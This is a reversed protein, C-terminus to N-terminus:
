AAEKFPTLDLQKIWEAAQHLSVDFSAAVAMVIQRDTPKVRVGATVPAPEEPLKAEGTVPPAVIEQPKDAQQEQSKSAEAAEQEKIAAIAKEREIREAEAKEHESIRATIVAKLDDNAKLVLQNADPFLMKHEGADAKLTELNIRIRDAIGNAEIKVRALETDAADRLSAITRKGKIVGAFDALVDPMIIKGGLTANITGIHASFETKAKSVIEARISEKRAKLLREAMLRNDRALAHLADKTRKVSDITSVQSLMQAEAADLADEAKKLAKIQLDLDAFDQDDQPERILRNAVFDRLADEFVKFNDVVDIAGSVQVSVAPLATVTEGVLTPAEDEHEYAAVDKDFQAWHDKLKKVDKANYELWCHVTKKPTGDTVMYLLKRAKSVGLEQVCQWRDEEPVIGEVVQAAKAENWQKCEWVVDEAMTIGDFSASLYGDDDTATNQFLDDGVIKEALPRAQLEVRHGEPFIVDRVYQPIEKEDGTAKLRILESRNTNGSVGMVIPAESGNRAKARHDHWEPTGQVLALTRM